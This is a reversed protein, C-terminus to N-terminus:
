SGDSAAYGCFFIGHVNGSYLVPEGLPRCDQYKTCGVQTDWVSKAM